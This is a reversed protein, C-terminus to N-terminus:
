NSGSIVFHYHLDFNFAITTRNDGFGFELSPDFTLDPAIEGVILQGGIVLQDPSTSFGVRPGVGGLSAAAHAPAAALAGFALILVLRRLM